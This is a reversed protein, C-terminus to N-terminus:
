KPEILSRTITSLMDNLDKRLADEDDMIPTKLSPQEGHDEKKSLIDQHEVFSRVMKEKDNNFVINLFVSSLPRNLMDNVDTRELLEEFTAEEPKDQNQKPRRYYFSSSAFKWTEGWMFDIDSPDDDVELDDVCGYDYTEHNASDRFEKCGRGLFDAGEPTLSGAKKLKIIEKTQTQKPRRYYFCVTQRFTVHRDDSWFFNITSPDNDLEYDAVFGYEYTERNVSDSLEKCGRGLFEAGEPTLSQAKALYPDEDIPLQAQDNEINTLLNRISKESANIVDLHHRITNLQDTNM